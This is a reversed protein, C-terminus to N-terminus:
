VIFGKYIKLILVMASSFVVWFIPEFLVLFSLVVTSKVAITSKANKNIVKKISVVVKDFGTAMLKDIGTPLTSLLTFADLVKVSQKPAFLLTTHYVPV